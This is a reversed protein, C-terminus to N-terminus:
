PGADPFEILHEMFILCYTIYLSRLYTLQEGDVHYFHHFAFSGAVLLILLVTVLPLFNRLPKRLYNVNALFRRTRRKM